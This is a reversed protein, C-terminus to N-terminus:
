FPPITSSHNLRLSAESVMLSNAVNHALMDCDINRQAPHHRVGTQPARFRRRQDPIVDCAPVVAGTTERHPARFGIGGRARDIQRRNRHRVEIRDPRLIRIARSRDKTQRNRRDRASDLGRGPRGTQPGTVAPMGTPDPIARRMTLAVPAQHLSGTEPM